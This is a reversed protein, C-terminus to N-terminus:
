GKKPPNWEWPRSARICLSPLGTPNDRLWQAKAEYYAVMENPIASM